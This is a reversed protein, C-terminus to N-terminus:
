LTQCEEFRGSAAVFCLVEKQGVKSHSLFLWGVGGGLSPLMSSTSEDWASIFPPTSVAVFAGSVSALGVVQVPGRKRQKSGIIVTETAETECKVKHM